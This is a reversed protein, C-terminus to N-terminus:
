GEIGIVNLESIAVRVLRSVLARRRRVAFYPLASPGHAVVVWAVAVCAALTRRSGHRERAKRFAKQLPMAQEVEAQALALLRDFLVPARAYLDVGTERQVVYNAAAMCSGATQFSARSRTIGNPNVRYYLLTENIRGFSFTDLARLWLDADESVYERYGGLSEFVRRRIMTTPNIIPKVVKRYTLGDRILRNDADRLTQRGTEAGEADIIVADSCVIDLAPDASMRAVEVELRDHRAIDDSDMRAILDGRCARLGANLAAPLGVRSLRIVRIREDGYSSLIDGTEDDSGDDVIVFEFDRFSQALISDVAQRLYRAGNHVSMLVSVRPRHTM